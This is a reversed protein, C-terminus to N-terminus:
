SSKGKLDFAYDDVVGSQTICSSTNNWTSCTTGFGGGPNEWQGPDYHTSTQTWGWEGCGGNYSCNAVVSLWYRTEKKGGSLKVGRIKCAFSGASDICHVTQPKGIVDGPHGQSNKYFTIVESNAPGAGTIYVGAADVGTVKWTKGKPVVFDDAAAANYATGMSGSTFNQSVIAYDYNSNQSYLTHGPSQIPRLGTAKIALAPHSGALAGGATLALVASAAMLVTKNMKNM